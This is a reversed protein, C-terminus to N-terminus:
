QENRSLRSIGRCAAGMRGAGFRLHGSLMYYLGDTDTRSYELPGFSLLFPKDEKGRPLQSLIEQTDM